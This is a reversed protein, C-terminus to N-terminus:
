PKRSIERIKKNLLDKLVVQFAELATFYARKSKKYVDMEKEVAELMCRITYAPASTSGGIINEDVFDDWNDGVYKAQLTPSTKNITLADLADEVNDIENWDIGDEEFLIMRPLIEIARAKTIVVKELAKSEKDYEQPVGRKAYFEEDDDQFMEGINRNDYYSSNKHKFDDSSYNQRFGAGISPSFTNIEKTLEIFEETLESETNIVCEYVAIFDKPLDFEDRTLTFPEGEKNLAVFRVEKLKEEGELKSHVAVKATMQGANNVIISFYFNHNPANTRLEQDDTGSFFVGMTNHSHIHGIIWNKEAAEHKEMFNVARLDIQYKTAGASGKDLPLIEQPTIVFTNPDTIDGEVTYFIIGSWEVSPIEKCLHKIQQEIKTSLNVQVKQGPMELLKLM